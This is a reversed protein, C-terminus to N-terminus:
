RAKPGIAQEDSAPEAKPALPSAVQPAPQLLRNILALDATLLNGSLQKLQLTNVLFKYRAAAFNAEAQYRKEIADLVDGNTRTGVEMGTRATAEADVAAEVARRLALVRQLGASTNLFAIRTDRVAKTTAAEAEAEAKTELQEAARIAASVQGGSYIPVNLQLGIYADEEKRDGTIGGGNDLSYATGNIDLKPYRSRQALRRDVRAVEVNARAALVASNEDRAREVWVSEVAPQPPALAITPPLVKLEGYARGTISELTIQAARLASDAAAADAFALEYAAQGAKQDAETALGAQTRSQIYDLQQYLTDKRAKAFVQADRAALLAFYAEAVGVLLAEQAADLAFFAQKQQLEAKDLGLFLDPRYLAQTLQAGYLTRTFTDSANIDIIGYYTGEISQHVWDFQGRVGLQPLLKGRALPKLEKAAEFQARVAAYTPNFQLADNCITLLDAPGDNPAPLDVLPPPVAQQALAILPLM